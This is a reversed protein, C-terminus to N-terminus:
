GDKKLAATSVWAQFSGDKIGFVEVASYSGGSELLTVRTGVPLKGEPPRGQQPGSLYYETEAIVSHTGKLTKGSPLDPGSTPRSSPDGSKEEGGCASVFALCLILSAVFVIRQM